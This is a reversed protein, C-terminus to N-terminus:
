GRPDHPRDDRMARYFDALVPDGPYAEFDVSLSPELLPDIGGHRKLVSSVWSTM